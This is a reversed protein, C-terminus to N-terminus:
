STIPENRQNGNALRQQEAKDDRRERGNTTGSIRTHSKIRMTPM